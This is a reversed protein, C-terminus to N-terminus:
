KSFCWVAMILIMGGIKGSRLMSWRKQPASEKKATDESKNFKKELAREETYPCKKTCHNKGCIHCIVPKGSRTLKM